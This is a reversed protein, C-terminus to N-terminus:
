PAPLLARFAAAAAPPLLVDYPRGRLHAPTPDTAAAPLLTLTHSIGTAGRLRFTLVLDPRAVSDAEDPSTAAPLFSDARLPSLLPLIDAPLPPSWTDDALHVYTQSANGPADPNDDTAATISALDSPPISLLDLSLYPAPSVTASLLTDPTALAITSDDAVALWCSAPALGPIADSSATPPAVRLTVPADPASALTIRLTRQFAAAPPPA